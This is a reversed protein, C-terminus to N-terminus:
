QHAFLIHGNPELVAESIEGRGSNTFAWVVQGGRVIFLREQRGEGTYLFDHQALGKGPLVAPAYSVASIAAAPATITASNTDACIGHLALLLCSSLLCTKKSFLPSNM